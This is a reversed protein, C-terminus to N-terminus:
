AHYQQSVTFADHEVGDAIGNKNILGLLNIQLRPPDSRFPDVAGVGDSRGQLLLRRNMHVAALMKRFLVTKETTRGGRNEIRFAPKQPCQIYGPIVTGVLFM